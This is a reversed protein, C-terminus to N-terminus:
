CYNGTLIANEDNQHLFYKGSLFNVLHLGMTKFMTNIYSNKQTPYFLVIDSYYYALLMRKGKQKSESIASSSYTIFFSYQLKQFRTKLGSCIVSVRQIYDDNCVPNDTMCCPCSFTQILRSIKYVRFIRVHHWLIQDPDASNAM